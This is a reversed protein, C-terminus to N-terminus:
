YVHINESPLYYFCRYKSNLGFLNVIISYLNVYILIYIEEHPWSIGAPIPRALRTNINCSTVLNMGNNTRKTCYSGLRTKSGM